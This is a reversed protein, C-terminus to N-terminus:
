SQGAADRAAQEEAAKRAAEEAAAEREAEDRAAQAAAEAEKEARKEAATKRRATQSPGAAPLDGADEGDAKFVHEGVLKADKAPMDDGVAYFVSSGDERHVYVNQKVEPM